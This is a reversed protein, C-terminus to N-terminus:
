PEIIHWAGGRRRVRGERELKELHATVTADARPVLAEPLGDYIRSVLFAVHAARSRLLDLIQEERGRRHAIYGRLLSAPGDVMPGHAPCMRSPELALIRELSALYAAVDGEPAPPIWVSTGMVALDGSFVTRSDAHWLCVHDPAHGPTHAVMLSLDGADLWEGDRVAHWPAPWRADAEPRPIKLFRVNPIREAIAPVGAIHDAHAHTVLVQALVGGGLADDLAALHKPNGVGADILTAVRGPLFWTWNGDGTM